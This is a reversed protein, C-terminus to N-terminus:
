AEEVRRGKGGISFAPLEGSKVKEWSGDESIYTGTIWGEKETDIGLAKALEKTLPLSHVVQGIVGGSHQEKVSRSGKMFENTAPVIEDM